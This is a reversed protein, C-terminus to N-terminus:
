PARQEDAGNGGRIRPCCTIRCIQTDDWDHTIYLWLGMAKGYIMGVATINVPGVLGPGGGLIVGGGGARGDGAGGKGPIAGSLFSEVPTAYGCSQKPSQRPRVVHVQDVPSNKRTTASFQCTVAPPQYNRPEGLPFICAGFEGSMLVQHTDGLLKDDAFITRQENHVDKIWNM